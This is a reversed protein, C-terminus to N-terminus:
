LGFADKFASAKEWWDFAMMRREKWTDTDPVADNPVDVIFTLVDDDPRFHFVTRFLTQLQDSTLM